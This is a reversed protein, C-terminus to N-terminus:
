KTGPGPLTRPVNYGRADVLCLLLFLNLTQDIWEEDGSEDDSQEHRRQGDADRRLGFGGGGKEEWVAALLM